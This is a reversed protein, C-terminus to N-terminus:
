PIERDPISAPFTNKYARALTAAKDGQGISALLPACHRYAEEVVPRISPEETSAFHIIQLFRSVAQKQEALHHSTTMAKASELVTLYYLHPANDANIHTLLQNFSAIADDRRGSEAYIRGLHYLSQRYMGQVAVTRVSDADRDYGATVAAFLPAAEARRDAAVHCQARRYLTSLAVIPDADSVTWSSSQMRQQLADHVRLALEPAVLPAGTAGHITGSVFRLQTDTFGRFGTQQKALLSGVHDWHGSEIHQRVLRFLSRRAAANDPFRSGLAEFQAMAATMEGMELYLNGLQELNVPTLDSHNPYQELARVLTDIARQRMTDSNPAQEARADRADKAPIGDRADADRAWRDYCLALYTLCQHLSTNLRENEDYGAGASLAKQLTAALDEYGEAAVVFQGAEAAHYAALFRIQFYAPDNKDQMADCAMRFHMAADTDRGLIRCIWGLRQSATAAIPSAPAAALVRRYMSEAQQLHTKVSQPNSGIPTTTDAQAKADDEPKDGVAVTYHHEAVAFLAKAVKPHNPAAAAFREFLYAALDGVGAAAKGSRKHQWMRAGLRFLAAHSKGDDPYLDAVYDCLAAAEHHHGLFFMCEAARAIVSLVGRTHPAATIIDMYATLARDYQQTRHLADATKVKVARARGTAFTVTRDFREELLATVDAIRSLARTTQDLNKGEAAKLLKGTAKIYLQEADADAGAQLQASAQAIRCEAIQLLASRFPSEADPVSDSHQRESDALFRSASRLIGMATETDGLLRHGRAIEGYALAAAYDPLLLLADLEAITDSIAKRAPKDNHRRALAAEGAGLKCRLWLATYLRREAVPLSDIRRLRDIIRGAEEHNDERELIRTYQLVAAKYEALAQAEGPVHAVRSFYAALARKRENDDRAVDAAALCAQRYHESDAPVNELARLAKKKQGAAAYIRSLLLEIAPSHEPFASRMLSAQLEAYDHLGTEALKRAFTMERGFDDHFGGSARGTM